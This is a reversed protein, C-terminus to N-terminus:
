SYIDSSYIDSFEIRAREVYNHQSFFSKSNLDHLKGTVPKCPIEFIFESGEGLKSNLNIKGGHKEILSKVLSLGIGSGESQRSLSKNVQQFREFIKKQKNDPIGIGNDKVTIVVKDGCDSLKVWIMGGSPTFKVANSLLNFLVREIQEPDCVINKEETNTDFTLTIGKSEIYEAISLTIAEAVEVINCNVLKLDFYDSDIKTIDILNNVLRLLRYCNQKMINLCGKEKEGLGGSNITCILQIAALIVNLPTRFEHSINSFFETKIQDYELTENLLETNKQINKELEVITKLHSVDRIVALVAPFGNYLYRTGIVEVDIAAGNKEDTLM